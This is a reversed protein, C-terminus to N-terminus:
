ADLGRLRYWAVTRILAEDMSLAPAWGLLRRTPEIDVTLSSCLSRVRAGSGTLAGAARLLAPPVAFLRV